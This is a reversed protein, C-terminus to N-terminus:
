DKPRKVFTYTKRHRDVTLHFFFPLNREKGESNEEEDGMEDAARVAM